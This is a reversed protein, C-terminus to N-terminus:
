YEVTLTISRTYFGSRLSKFNSAILWGYLTVTQNTGNRLLGLQTGPPANSLEAGGPSSASLAFALSNVGSVLTRTTASYLSPSTAVDSTCNVWFSSGSNASIDGSSALAVISGFSLT